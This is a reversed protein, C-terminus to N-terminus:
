KNSELDIFTNENTDTNCVIFSWKVGSEMANQCFEAAEQPTNATVEIEWTVKFNKM